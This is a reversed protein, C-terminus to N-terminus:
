PSPTGPDPWWTAITGASVASGDDSGLPVLVRLGQNEVQLCLWAESDNAYADIMYDVTAVGGSSIPHNGPVENSPDTTDKCATSDSDTTPTGPLGTVQPDADAPTAELRGGYGEGTSTDEVRACIWAEDASPQYTYVFTRVGENTVDVIRPGDNFECLKSEIFPSDGIKVLDLLDSVDPLDSGDPVLALAGNIDVDEVPDPCYQSDTGDTGSHWAIGVLAGETATSSRSWRGTILWYGHYGPAVDLTADHLDYTAASVQHTGVGNVGKCFLADSDREFEMSVIADGILTGNLDTGTAFTLGPTSSDPASFEIMTSTSAGAGRFVVADGASSDARTPSVVLISVVLAMVTAPIVLRWRRPRSPPSATWTAYADPPM